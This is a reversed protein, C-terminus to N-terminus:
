KSPEFAKAAEELVKIVPIHQPCVRECKGCHLCDSVKAHSRVTTNTVYRKRAAEENEYVRLVQLAEIIGPISIHKPCGEKCYGCSTCPIMPISSIIKRVEDITKEEKADLPKFHEMYSLNDEMQFLNSMGSLVVMTGKASAAFRVAWSAPSAEPNVQNLLDLVKKPPVALLGGKVPEMVVVPKGHKRAVDLCKRSEVLPNDWDAYNIQLQVFDVESHATLIKELVSSTDHFSFGLHKILGERKRAEVFDWLGFKEYLATREGGLNHLLYSDFFDVGLRELSTCFMKEAEAKDKAMFAPLKTALFYREHPYRDVLAKRTADESGPYGWATDFYRGGKELFLDVMRSVEDIDIVGDKKPLRMLGFGLKGMESGFYDAM